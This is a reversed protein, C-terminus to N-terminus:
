SYMTVGFEGYSSAILPDSELHNTYAQYYAGNEKMVDVEDEDDDDDDVADGDGPM